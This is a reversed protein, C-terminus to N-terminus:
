GRRTPRTTRGSTPCSRSTGRLSPSCRPASSTAAARASSPQARRRQRRPALRRRTRRLTAPSALRRRTCWSRGLCRATRRRCACRCRSTSSRMIPAFRRRTPSSSSPSASSSSGAWDLYAAAVAGAASKRRTLTREDIVGVVLLLVSHAPFSAGYLGEGHAEALQRRRRHLVLDASSSSRHWMASVEPTVVFLVPFCVMFGGYCLNALRTFALQWRAAAGGFGRASRAGRADHRALRLSPLIPRCCRCRCRSTGRAARRLRRLHQQLRRAGEATTTSSRATSGGRAAWSILCM